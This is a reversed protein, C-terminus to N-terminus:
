YFRWFCMGNLPTYGELYWLNPFIYALFGYNQGKVPSEKGRENYRM